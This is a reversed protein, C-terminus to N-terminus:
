SAAAIGCPIAPNEVTVKWTPEPLSTLPDGGVTLPAQLPKTVKLDWTIVHVVQVTLLSDLPLPLHTNM